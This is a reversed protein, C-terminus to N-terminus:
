SAPHSGSGTQFCHRLSCFEMVYKARFQIGTTRGM